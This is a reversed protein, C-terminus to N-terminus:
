RTASTGEDNLHCVDFRHAMVEPAKKFANLADPTGACIFSLHCVNSLYKMTAFASSIVSARRSALHQFDHIAIARINNLACLSRVMDERDYRTRAPQHHEFGALFARWVDDVSTIAPFHTVLIRHTRTPYTQALYATLVESAGDEEDIILLNRLSINTVPEALLYDINERARHYAPHVSATTM